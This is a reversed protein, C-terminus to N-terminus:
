ILWHHLFMCLLYTTLRKFQLANWCANCSYGDAGSVTGDVVETRQFFYRCYILYLDIAIKCNSCQLKSWKWCCLSSSDHWANLTQMFFIFPLWCQVWLLSNFTQNLQKTSNFETLKSIFIVLTPTSAYALIWIGKHSHLNLLQLNHNDNIAATLHRIQKVWVWVPWMPHRHVTRGWM